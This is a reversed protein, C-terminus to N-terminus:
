ARGVMNRKSCYWLVRGTERRLLHWLVSLNAWERGEGEVTIPSGLIKKIKKKKSVFPNRPNPFPNRIKVGILELIILLVM